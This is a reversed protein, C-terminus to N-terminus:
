AAAAVLLLLLLLLSRQQSARACRCRQKGSAWRTSRCVLCPLTSPTCVPVHAIRAACVYGVRLVASFLDAGGASGAPRGVKVAKHAGGGSAAAWERLASMTIERFTAPASFPPLQFACLLCACCENADIGASM